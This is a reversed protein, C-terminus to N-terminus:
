RKMYDKLYTGKYIIVKQSKNENMRAHMYVKPMLEAISLGNNQTSSSSALFCICSPGQSM